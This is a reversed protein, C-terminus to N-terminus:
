GVLRRALAAAAGRNEVGLKALLNSVHVSVTKETIYLQGAITKNTAGTALLDLVEKERPTEVM